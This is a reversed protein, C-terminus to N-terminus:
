YIKGKRKVKAIRMNRRLVKDNKGTVKKVVAIKGSKQPLKRLAVKSKATPLKKVVRTPLKKTSPKVKTNM